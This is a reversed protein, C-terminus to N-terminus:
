KSEWTFPSRFLFSKSRALGVVLKRMDFNAAKFDAFAADLSAQEDKSELRGQGFRAWQTVM